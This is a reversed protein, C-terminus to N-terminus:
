VILQFWSYWQKDLHLALSCANMQQREPSDSLRRESKLSESKLAATLTGAEVM